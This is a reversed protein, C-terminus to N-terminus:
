ALRRKSHLSCGLFIIALKGFYATRPLPAVLGAARTGGRVGLKFGISTRQRAIISYQQETNSYLQVHGKQPRLLRQDKELM